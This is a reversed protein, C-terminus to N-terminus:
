AADHALRNTIRKKMKDSPKEMSELNKRHQGLLKQVDEENPNWINKVGHQHANRIAEARLDLAKQVLDDAKELEIALQKQMDDSALVEAPLSQIKKFSDVVVRLVNALHSEAIYWADRSKTVDAVEQNKRVCESVDFDGVEIIPVDRQGQRMRRIQRATVGAIRSLDTATISLTLADALLM